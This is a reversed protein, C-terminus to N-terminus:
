KMRRRKKQGSKKKADHFEWFRSGMEEIENLREQYEPTKFLRDKLSLCCNVLAVSVGVVLATKLTDHLESQCFSVRCFIQIYREVAKLSHTMDRGIAVPDKGRIYQEIIKERHTVGPGIDLKNGRTPVLIDLKNQLAHIDKRITKEDCDLMVALDQQTILCGQDLAESTIRLIQQQRKASLGHEKKVAQDEELRHISLIIDKFICDKLPKGPPEEASIARWIMQGVQPAQKLANEGLHFVEQAKQSIVEAEFKSCSTGVAIINALTQSQSRLALRKEAQEKRMATTEIM